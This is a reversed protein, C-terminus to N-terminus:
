RTVTGSPNTNQANNNMEYFFHDMPNADVMGVLPKLTFPAASNDPSPEVSIVITSESLDTPFTLGSPANELFDEGPYNPGAMTGSFPAAEDASSEDTFTGTTVPTGDIVAWGEYKWGNPLDHLSLGATPSGSTNDLFWVGSLENNEMGNTPTALIYGGTSSTFDDGLASVHDVTVQATSGNFDGALIHTSSPDPDNDPSPEITLVYASAKQLDEEDFNFTSNTINGNADINFIGASEASGDIILWGEYAFNPGLDELGSFDLTLIGEENDSCSSFIFLVLALALFQNLYKM